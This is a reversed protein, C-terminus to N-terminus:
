YLWRRFLDHSFAIVALNRAMEGSNIAVGTENKLSDHHDWFDRVALDENDILARVYDRADKRGFEILLWEIATTHDFMPAEHDFIARRLQNPSDLLELFPLLDNRVMALLEPLADETAVNWIDYTPVHQALGINGSVLISSPRGAGLCYRERIERLGEHSLHLELSIPLYAGRVPNPGLKILIEERLPPTRRELLPLGGNRFLKFDFRELSGGLFHAAAQFGSETSLSGPEGLDRVFSPIEIPTTWAEEFEAYTRLRRQTIGFM